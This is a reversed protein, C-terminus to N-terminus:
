CNPIEFTEFIDQLKYSIVSSYSNTSSISTESSENSMTNSM